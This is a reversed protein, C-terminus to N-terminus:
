KTKLSMGEKYARLGFICGNIFTLVYAIFFFIFDDFIKYQLMTIVARLGDIFLWLFFIISGIFSFLAWGNESNSKVLGKEYAFWCICCFVIPFIAATWIAAEGNYYLNANLRAAEVIVLVMSVFSLIASYM